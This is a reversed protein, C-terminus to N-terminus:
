DFLLNNTRRAMARTPRIQTPNSPSLTTKSALRALRCCSAATAVSNGVIAGGVKVGLEVAVAVGVSVGNGVGVPVLTTSGVMEGVEPPSRESGVEVGFGM